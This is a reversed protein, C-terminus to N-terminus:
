GGRGAHRAPRGAVGDTAPAGPRRHRQRSRCSPPDTRAGGHIEIFGPAVTHIRIGRPGFELTRISATIELSAIGSGALEFAFNLAVPSGPFNGSVRCAMISKDGEKQASLPEIVADYKKSSAEQWKRIAAHGQHRKGEDRVAGHASFCRVVGDVDHRNAADIYDNIIAPIPLAM